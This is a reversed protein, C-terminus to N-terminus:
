AAVRGSRRKHLLLVTAAGGAVIAISLVVPLVPFGDFVLGLRRARSATGASKTRPPTPAEAARAQGRRRQRVAAGRRSRGRGRGGAEPVDALALRDERRGPLAPHPLGPRRDGRHQEDLGAAPLQPLRRRRRRHRRGEGPLQLPDAPQPRRLPVARPEPRRRRVDRRRRRRRGCGGAGLRPRLRHTPTWHRREASPRQVARHLRERLARLREGERDNRAAYGQDDIGVEITKARRSPSRRRRRLGGRTRRVLGLGLLMAIAFARVRRGGGSRHSRLSQVVPSFRCCCAFARIRGVKHQRECTARSSNLECASSRPLARAFRAAGFRETTM